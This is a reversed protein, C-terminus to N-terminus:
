GELHRLLLLGLGFAKGRGVGAKLAAGLAEPQTVTLVGAYDVMTLALPKGDRPLRMQGQPGASCQDRDFTVGLRGEREFLWSLAVDQIEVPSLPAGKAQKAHM